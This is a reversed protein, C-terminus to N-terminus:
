GVHRQLWDRFPTVDTMVRRIRELAKRTSLWPAPEFAKGAFIDKMRLLEIRPHEASYGRPASTLMEHTEVRYGKRRLSTVLTQLKRGSADADIAARLRALTAPEPKYVGTGVYLGAPSLHIYYRGIGTAIHTKYPSKDRSFRIDRNIRSVKSPGLRPELEAALHQMPERCAREYVEKHAQFWERNNHVKLGKFFDIAERPFGTFRGAM